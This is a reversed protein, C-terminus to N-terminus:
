SNGRRHYSYFLRARTNFFTISRSSQHLYTINENDSIEKYRKVVQQLPKDHKRLMRKLYKMYNEFYFCSCSDLPGYIKYDDALHLLGHVNHSMFEIGYIQQFTKVYYDLLQHAYELYKCHDSSLLIRM